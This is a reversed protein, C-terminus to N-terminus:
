GASGTPTSSRSRILPSARGRQHLRAPVPRRRRPQARLDDPDSREHRLLLLRRVQRDRGALLAARPTEIMTGVTYTLRHGARPSSRDRGRCDIVARQRRLEEPDVVLPVMIEPQVTIGDAACALAARFIAGLRCPRSRQIPLASGAAATASCPIPRVCRRSAPRSRRSRGASGAPSAPAIEERRSPFSNTSRPISPVSPSRSLRGHGPLYRHLRRSPAARAGGPRTAAGRCTEALIMERVLDIRDDGFFMHETRCLGIGEAGFARAQPADAPYRCQSPRALHRFTDSWHLLTEAGGSLDPEIMAARGLMVRGTSGDITIEDGAHVVIKGARFTEGVPAIEIEGCGTVAPKGMGRAVVAAHSTMGGRATVIGRARVMGPFDDASTEVRVLIVDEGREGRWSAEMPDFVVRGARAGPSAPLGTAIMRLPQSEDIRPIFFNSSRGQSWGAYRQKGTSSGKRWWPWRLPSRQRRPESARARRCCGSGGESSRSSSTRCIGTIGSLAALSILWSSTPMALAPDGAMAEIPMPTRTGAVVDEGQANILVEGFLGPAGTNPNRTFAVGTASDAGGNGFVMAQVNVATGLDDPIGHARRYAVARPTNWSRFVALIAGHLQEIPDAPLTQGFSAITARTREVTEELVGDQGTALAAEGAATVADIAGALHPDDIGLVIRGYMQTFRRLCDLAFTPDLRRALGTIVQEDIGVNLVTDMMGPMSFRAGSRVSVLLPVPRTASGAALACSSM